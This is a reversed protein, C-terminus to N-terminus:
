PALKTLPDTGAKASAITDTILKDTGGQVVIFTKPDVAGYAGGMGNPGYINAMLMQAQMAQPNNEDMEFNMKYTQLKVGSITMGEPSREFSMKPQGGGAANNAAGAGAQANMATFLKGMGDLLQDETKALAQADGKVVSVTQIISDAGLAGTPVTYG